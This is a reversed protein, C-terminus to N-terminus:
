EGGTKSDPPVSTGSAANTPSTSDTKRRRGAILGESAMLILLPLLLDLFVHPRSFVSDCLWYLAAGAAWLAVNSIIRLKTM